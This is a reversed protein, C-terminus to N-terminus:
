CTTMESESRECKQLYCDMRKSGGRVIDWGIYAADEILCAHPARAEGEPCPVIRGDHYGYGPGLLCDGADDHSAAAWPRATTTGERCSICPSLTNGPNWSGEECPAPGLLASYGACTCPVCATYPCCARMM